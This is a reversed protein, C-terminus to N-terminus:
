VRENEDGMLNSDYQNVNTLNDKVYGFPRNVREISRLLTGLSVLAQTLDEIIKTWMSKQRSLNVYELHEPLNHIYNKQLDLRVNRNSIGSFEPSDTKKTLEVMYHYAKAEIKDSLVQLKSETKIYFGTAQRLLNKVEAIRTRLYQSNDIQQPDITSDYKKFIADFDFEIYTM